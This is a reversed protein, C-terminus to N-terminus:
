EGIAILFEWKDNYTHCDGNEWRLTAFVGDM